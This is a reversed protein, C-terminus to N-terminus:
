RRHESVQVLHQEVAATVGALRDPQAHLRVRRRQLLCQLLRELLRGAQLGRGRAERM